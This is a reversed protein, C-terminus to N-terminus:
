GRGDREPSPTPPAIGLRECVIAVLDSARFPKAIFSSAGVLKSRVRDVLGDRGSLMLIPTEAFAANTRLVAAVEFGDLRPLDVDLLVLDPVSVEREALARIAALGDAFSAVRVGVRAFSHEVITRIAPSDDIVMILPSRDRDSGSGRRAAPASLRQSSLDPTGAPWPSSPDTSSPLSSSPLSM